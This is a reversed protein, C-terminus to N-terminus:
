FWMKFALEYLPRKEYDTFDSVPESDSFVYAAFMSVTLEMNQTPMLTLSPCVLVARGEYDGVCILSSKFLIDAEWDAVLAGYHRNMTIFRNSLTDFSDEDPGFVVVQQVMNALLPVRNLVNKNYFYELMITVGGPFTYEYGAGALVDEEQQDNRPKAYLMSGRLLGDVLDINVDAGGLWRGPVHGGLVAIDALGTVLKARGAGASNDADPANNEFRNNCRRPVGVFSWELAEMPYLDIRIADVGKSRSEGGPAFPTIPNLIDLPNWLKGSGFRVQQRGATFSLFGSTYQMWARQGRVIFYQHEGDYKRYEAAFLDNYDDTIWQSQFLMTGAYSSAHYEAELSAFLFLTGPKRYQPELTIRQVGNYLMTDDSIGTEPDSPWEQCFGDASYHVPFAFSGPEDFPDSEEAGLYAPAFFLAFLLVYTRMDCKEAYAKKATRKSKKASKNEDTVIVGDVLHLLREAREMVM